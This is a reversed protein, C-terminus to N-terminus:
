TCAGMRGKLKKKARGIPFGYKVVDDGPRINELAFKHGQFIHERLLINLSGTCFMEGEDLNKLAVAVNDKEHIRIGIM